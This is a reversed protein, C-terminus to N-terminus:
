AVDARKIAEIEADYDAKFNDLFWKKVIAYKGRKNSAIEIVKELRELEAPNSALFRKMEDIDLGAYSKKNAKKEITKYVVKFGEFDKLLRQMTNFEESGFVSAAKGFRKTITITKSAFDISYGTTKNM